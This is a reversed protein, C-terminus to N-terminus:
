CCCCCCCCNTAAAATLLLLGSSDLAAAFIYQGLGLQEAKMLRSPTTSSVMHYLTVNYWRM